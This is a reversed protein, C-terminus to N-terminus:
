KLYQELYRALEAAPQYGVIRTLEKGASDLILLTPYNQVGFQRVLDREFDGDLKLCVFSNALSVIEADKFTREDLIVCPGSWSVCFNVFINQKTRRARQLARPYADLWNIQSAARPRRMEHSYPTDIALDEDRSLASEEKHLIIKDGRAAIETLEFATEAFWGLRTTERFFRVDRLFTDGLSDEPFLAWRDNADFIGNADDDALVVVARRDDYVFRGERWSLRLLSCTKPQSGDDPYWFYIKCLFPEETLTNEHHWDYPLAVKEFETYHQNRRAIFRGESSYSAGDNNFDRDKNRDVLLQDYYQSQPTSKALLLFMAQGSNGLMVSALLASQRLNEPINFKLAMSDVPTFDLRQVTAYPLQRGSTVDAYHLGVEFEDKQCSFGLLMLLLAFLCRSLSNIHSYLSSLADTQQATHM